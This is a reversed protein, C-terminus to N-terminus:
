QQLKNLTCKYKRKKGNVCETWRLYTVDKPLEAFYIGQTVRIQLLKLDKSYMRIRKRKVFWLSIARPEKQIYIKSCAFADEFDKETMNEM